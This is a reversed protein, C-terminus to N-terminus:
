RHPRSRSTKAEQLACTVFRSATPARGAAAVGRGQGQGRRRRRWTLVFPRSGLRGAEGEVADVVWGYRRRAKSVTLHAEIHDALFGRGVLAVGVDRQREAVRRCGFTAVSRPVRDRGDDGPCFPQRADITETAGEKGETPRERKRFGSIPELRELVVSDGATPESLASATSM